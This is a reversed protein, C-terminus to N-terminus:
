SPSSMSVIGLAPSAARGLPERRLQGTPSMRPACILHLGRRFTALSRSSNSMGGVARREVGAPASGAPGPRHRRRLGSDYEIDARDAHINERRTHFNGSTMWLAAKSNFNRCAAPMSSSRNAQM